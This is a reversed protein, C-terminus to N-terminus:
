QQDIYRVQSGDIICLVRADSEFPSKTFVVFGACGDAGSAIAANTTLAKLAQEPAMGASVAEAAMLTLYSGAERGGSGFAVPVGAKSLKAASSAVHAPLTDFGTTGIRQPDLLVTVGSSRLAKAAKWAETAGTLVVHKLGYEDVLELLAEIEAARHAEIRLTAKNALVDLLAESTPNPKPKSPYKPRPPAKKGDGKATAPKTEPKKEQTQNQRRGNKQLWERILRMYEAQRQERPLNKIKEQIERLVEPPIRPRRRGFGRRGRRGSADSAETGADKPKPAAKMPNKKYYALFEKRKKKYEALDKKWKDKAEGYKKAADLAGRLSRVVAERSLTTGRTKTSAVQFRMAGSQKSPTPGAALDLDVIAGPGASQASVSAPVYVSTVGGQEVLARWGRQWTELSEGAKTGMNASSDSLETSSKFWRSDADVIGPMVFSSSARKNFNILKAKAKDGLATQIAVPDDFVGLFKGSKFAAYGTGPELIEPRGNAGGPNFVASAQVFVVNADTLLKEVEARTAKAKAPAKTAKPAPSSKKPVKLWGKPISGQSHQASVSSVAFLLSLGATLNRSFGVAAGPAPFRSMIM